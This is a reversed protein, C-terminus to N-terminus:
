IQNPLLRVIGTCAVFDMTFARARRVVNAGSFLCLKMAAGNEVTSVDSLTSTVIHECADSQYLDIQLHRKKRSGIRWILIGTGVVIDM